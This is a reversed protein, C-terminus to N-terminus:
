FKHLSSAVLNIAERQTPCCAQGSGSITRAIANGVSTQLSIALWKSSNPSVALSM